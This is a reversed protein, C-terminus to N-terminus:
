KISNKGTRENGHKFNGTVKALFLQLAYDDGGDIASILKAYDKGVLLKIMNGKFFIQAKNEKLLRYDFPQEERLINRKDELRPM